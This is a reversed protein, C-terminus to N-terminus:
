LLRIIVLAMEEIPYINDSEFEIQPYSYLEPMEFVDKKAGRKKRRTTIPEEKDDEEESEDTATLEGIIEDARRLPKQHNAEVTDKDKTALEHASKQKKYVDLLKQRLERYEFRMQLDDILHKTTEFDM